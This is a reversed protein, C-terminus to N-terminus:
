ADSGLTKEGKELAEIEAGLLDFERRNLELYVRIPRRRAGEPTLVYVIKRLKNKTRYFKGVELFGNNLPAHTLFNTKGLSVATENALTRQSINPNREICKITQFHAEQKPTM